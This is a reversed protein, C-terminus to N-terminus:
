TNAKAKAMAAAKKRVAAAAERKAAAKTVAAAHRAAKRALVAERAVRDQADLEAAAQARAEEEVFRRPRYPRAAKRALVAEALTVPSRAGGGSGGGGRPKDGDELVQCINSTVDDL